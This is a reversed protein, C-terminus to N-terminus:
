SSVRTFSFGCLTTIFLGAIRLLKKTSEDEEPIHAIMPVQEIAPNDVNTTWGPSTTGQSFWTSSLLNM